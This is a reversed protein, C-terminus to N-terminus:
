YSAGSQYIIFFENEKCCWHANTPGIPVVLNFQKIAVSTTHHTVILADPAVM